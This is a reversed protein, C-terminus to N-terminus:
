AANRKRGRAKRADAPACDTACSQSADGCCNRTLFEVLGNMVTFDAAYILQRSAREQTLLGVRQLQQLHFTLSSPALKLREAIVGAPLGEPGREILLRYIALRYEHALAALADVVDSNRM